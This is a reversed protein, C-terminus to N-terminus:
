SLDPVEIGEGQLFRTKEANLARAKRVGKSLKQEKQRLFTIKDILILNENM